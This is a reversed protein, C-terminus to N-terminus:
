TPSALFPGELTHAPPDRFPHTMGAPLVKADVASFTSYRKPRPEFGQWDSERKARQGPACLSKAAPAIKLDRADCLNAAPCRQGASQKSMPRASAQRQIPPAM